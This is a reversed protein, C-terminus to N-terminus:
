QVNWSRSEQKGNQELLAAQSEPEPAVGSQCDTGVAKALSAAGTMLLALPTVLLAVLVAALTVLTAVGVPYAVLVLAITSWALGPWASPGSALWSHSDLHALHAAAWACFHPVPGEDAGALSTQLEKKALGVGRNRLEPRLLGPDTFMFHVAQLLLLLCIACLGATVATDCHARRLSRRRWRMVALMGLLLLVHQVWIPM